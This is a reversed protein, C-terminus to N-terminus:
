MPNNLAILDFETLGVGHENLLWVLYVIRMDSELSMGSVNLLMDALEANKTKLKCVRYENVATTLMFAATILNSKTLM